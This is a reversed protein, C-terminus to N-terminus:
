DFFLNRSLLVYFRAGNMSILGAFFLTTMHLFSTLLGPAELL